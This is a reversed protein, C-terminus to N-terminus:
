IKRKEFRFYFISNYLLLAVFPLWTKREEGIKSLFEKIFLLFLLKRKEREKEKKERDLSM